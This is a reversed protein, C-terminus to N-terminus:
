PGGGDADDLVRQGGYPPLTTLRADEVAGGVTFHYLSQWARDGLGLLRHMEDDFFCGIGTGRLGAAEAELYLVQGVMGCERHRSRYRWPEREVDDMRALMGLAFCSDAAIDQHCCITRAVERLDHPLLLYLPLDPPGIKEWLWDARMAPRLASLDGAARLLLYLGPTLGRVRHVLLALHVTPAAGWANFPPVGPRPLTADLLAFFASDEMETVADFAVASRRQRFIQAAALDRDTPLPPPLSAPSWAVPMPTRPKLSLRHALAIDPWDRHEPSLRAAHGSWASPEPLEFPAADPVPSLHLLCDAAEREGEVFDQERDLGLLAALEAEGTEDVRRTQWGLAAAAYALAAVAHGCDHQCYRFARMGYKWAERWYISTLALLVGGGALPASWALRARRELCHELSLYHHLGAAIGPLGPTLLYAETPHLNGSSPNCRLAWRSAGYQKWASLGLSLEFLAGISRRDFPRPPPLRGARLEGFRVGLGDAALPLATRAAGEFHRFPDPQTAWDLYGPGPAYGRLGHKSRQHYDLLTM